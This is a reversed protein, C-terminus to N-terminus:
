AVKIKRWHFKREVRILRIAFRLLEGIAPLAYLKTLMGGSDARSLNGLFARRRKADAGAFNIQRTFWEAYSIIYILKHSIKNNESVLIKKFFKNRLIIEDDFPGNTHNQSDQGAHLRYLFFECDAFVAIKGGRSTNILHPTDGIKGYVNKEMFKKLDSTRYIASSFSARGDYFIYASFDKFNDFLFIEDSPNKLMTSADAGANVYKYNSSILAVNEIKNLVRLAFEIYKPHLVDDDHFLMTYACDSSNAAKKFNADAGVNENHRFYSVKIDANKEAFNEVVNRTDDASANDFVSVCFGRVTQDAISKLTQKLLTARNYTLVSINIDSTTYKKESM